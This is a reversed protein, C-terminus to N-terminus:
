FMSKLTYRLQVVGHKVTPKLHLPIFFVKFPKNEYQDFNNLIGIYWLVWLSVQTFTKIHAASVKLGQGQKLCFDNWKAVKNLVLPKIEHCVSKAYLLLYNKLGVDPFFLQYWIMAM